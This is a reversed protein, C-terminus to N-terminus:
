GKTSSELKNKAIRINVEVVRSSPDLSAATEWLEIAAEFKGQRFQDYGDDFLRNFRQRVSEERGVGLKELADNVKDQLDISVKAHEVAMAEALTREISNPEVDCSSKWITRGASTVLTVIKPRPGHLYETQVQLIRNHAAVSSLLGPPAPPPREHAAGAIERFDIPQALITFTGETLSCLGDLQQEVSEVRLNGSDFQVDVAFNPAEIRVVGTLGKAECFKLLSPFDLLDLRGRFTAVPPRAQARRV